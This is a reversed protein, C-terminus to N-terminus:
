SYVLHLHFLLRRVRLILSSFYMRQIIKDHKEKGAKLKDEYGYRSEINLQELIRLIRRANNYYKKFDLVTSADRYGKVRDSTSFGHGKYYRGCFGM